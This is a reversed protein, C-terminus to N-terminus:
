LIRLRKAWPVMVRDKGSTQSTYGGSLHIICPWSNTKNNIAKPQGDLVVVDLFADSVQFIDCGSDLTPRFWGEQWADYWNFCDDGTQRPLRLMRRFAYIIADKDAIYGGRNPYRYYINHDFCNPYQKEEDSVNGLQFFASCLIDPSGLQKYRIEIQKLDDTFFADWSDTFLVHTYGKTAESILYELQWDLCLTRYGPFVRGMGYLHPQINYKECSKLFVWLKARAEQETPWVGATLVMTRM